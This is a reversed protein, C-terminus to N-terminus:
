KEMLEKIRKDILEEIKVDVGDKRLYFEDALVRTTGKLSTAGKVDLDGHARMNGRAHIGRVGDVDKGVRFSVYKETLIASEPRLLTMGQQQYRGPGYATVEKQEQLARASTKRPNILGMGMDIIVDYVDQFVDFLIDFDSYEDAETIGPLISM